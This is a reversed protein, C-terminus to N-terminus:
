GPSPRPSPSMASGGRRSRGPSGGRGSFRAEDSVLGRQRAPPAARPNVGAIAAAFPRHRASRGRRSRGPSGVVSVVRSM